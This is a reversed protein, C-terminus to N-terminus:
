RSDQLAQPHQCVIRGAIRDLQLVQAMALRHNGQNGIFVEGARGILFTPLPHLRGHRDAIEFGSRQMAEYMADFRAHYGRSLDKLTRHRGIRGDRKIRRAYNDAFLDTEIWPRGELYRQVMARYKATEAFIHCREIDWNGAEIEGLDAVPSIKRTIASPAIWLPDAM